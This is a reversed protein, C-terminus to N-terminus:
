DIVTTGYDSFTWTTNGSTTIESGYMDMIQTYECVFTLLKGDESITAKAQRIEITAPVDFMSIGNEASGVGKLVKEITITKPITYVGTAPDYVFSDYEELVAMFLQACQAKQAEAIEGEFVMTQSDSASSETDDALLEMSVKDSTIKIEERIDSVVPEVGTQVVTMTGEMTFTYNEFTKESIMEKWEAEGIGTAAESEAGEAASNNVSENGDQGLLLDCSTLAVVCLLSLVLAILKIKM